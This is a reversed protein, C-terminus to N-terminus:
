RRFKSERVINKRKNNQFMLLNLSIFSIPLNPHSKPLPCLLCSFRGREFSDGRSKLMLTCHPCSQPWSLMQESTKTTCAVSHQGQPAQSTSNKMATKVHKLFFFVLNSYRSDKISAAGLLLGEEHFVGNISRSSM